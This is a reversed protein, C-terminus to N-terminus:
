LDMRVRENILKFIQNRVSALQLRRLATQNSEIDMHVGDNRDDRRCLHILCHAATHKVYTQSQPQAPSRRWQWQQRRRRWRQRELYIIAAPHGHPAAANGNWGAVDACLSLPILSPLTAGSRLPQCECM